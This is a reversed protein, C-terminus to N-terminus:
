LAGVLTFFVLQIYREDTSLRSYQTGTHDPKDLSFQRERSRTCRAAVRYIKSKLSTGYLSRRFIRLIRGKDNLLSMASAFKKISAHITEFTYVYM